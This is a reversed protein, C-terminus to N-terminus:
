YQMCMMAVDPNIAFALCNRELVVNVVYFVYFAFTIVRFGYFPLGCMSCRFPHDIYLTRDVRVCLVHFVVFVYRNGYLGFDRSGFASEPICFETCGRSVVLLFAFM